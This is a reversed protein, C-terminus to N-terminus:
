SKSQESHRRKWFMWWSLGFMIIFLGYRWSGFTTLRALPGTLVYNIYLSPAFVPFKTVAALISFLPNIFIGALLIWYVLMDTPSTFWIISDVTAVILFIGFAQTRYFTLLVTTDIIVLVGLSITLSQSFLSHFIWWPWGYPDILGVYDSYGSYWPHKFVNVLADQLLGCDCLATFRLYKYLQFLLIPFLVIRSRQM